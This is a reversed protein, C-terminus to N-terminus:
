PSSCSRAASFVRRRSGSWKDTPSPPRVTWIGEAGGEGSFFGGLVVVGVLVVVVVVGVSAPAKPASAPAEEEGEDADDTGPMVDGGTPM